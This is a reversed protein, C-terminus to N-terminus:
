VKFRFMYGLCHNCEAKVAENVPNEECRGNSPKNTQKNVHSIRAQMKINSNAENLTQCDHSLIM